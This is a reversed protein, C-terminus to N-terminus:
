LSKLRSYAEPTDLDDVVGSHSWDIQVTCYERLRESFPMDAESALIDKRIRPGILVPHGPIGRYVPRLAQPSNKANKMQELVQLLRQFDEPRVLPMDAPLVFFYESRVASLGRRLTAGMGRRWRRSRLLVLSANGPLLGDRRARGLLRKLARVRFGGVLIVRCGANLAASVTETLVTGEKWPLAPKWHKMRSSRGAAPIICDPVAASNREFFNNFYRNQTM